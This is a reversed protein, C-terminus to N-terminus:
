MSNNVERLGNFFCKKAYGKFMLPNRRVTTGKLVKYYVRLHYVDPLVDDIELGGYMTDFENFLM